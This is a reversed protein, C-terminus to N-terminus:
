PAIRAVKTFDDRVHEDESSLNSVVARELKNERLIKAGRPEVWFRNLVLELFVKVELSYM